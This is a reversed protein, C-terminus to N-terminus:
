KVPEWDCSAGFISMSQVKRYGSHMTGAPSTDAPVCARFGGPLEAGLMGDESADSANSGDGAKSGGLSTTPSAAALSATSSSSSAAPAAGANFDTSPNDSTVSIPYGPTPTSSRPMAVGAGAQALIQQVRLDELKREVTKGKWELVINDRDFSVVKFDGVPDGAHYGHQVDKAVSLFIVPEGISMQGSYTPLAPMVPEPAPKPPEVVVIPNRDKSFLMKNAVDIYEAPAAAQVAPIRPPALVARPAVKHRLVARERAQAALWNERLVWGLAGVLALLALNLLVIRRNM